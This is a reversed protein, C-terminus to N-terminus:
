PRLITSWRMPQKKQWKSTLRQGEIFILPNIKLLPFSIKVYWETELLIEEVAETEFGFDASQLFVYLYEATDSRVKLTCNAYGTDVLFYPVQKRTHTHLSNM